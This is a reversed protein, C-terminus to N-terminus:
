VRKYLLLFVSKPVTNRELIDFVQINQIVTMIFVTCMNGHLNRMNPIEQCPLEIVKWYEWHEVLYLGLEM